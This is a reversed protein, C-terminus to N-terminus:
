DMSHLPTQDLNSFFFILQKLHTILLQLTRCNKSIKSLITQKESFNGFYCFLSYIEFFISLSRALKFKSSFFDKKVFINIIKIEDFSPKSRIAQRRRLDTMGETIVKGLVINWYHMQHNMTINKCVQFFM